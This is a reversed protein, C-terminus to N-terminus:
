LSPSEELESQGYHAHSSWQLNLGDIAIDFHLSSLYTNYRSNTHHGVESLTNFRLNHRRRFRAAGEFKTCLVQQALAVNPHELM